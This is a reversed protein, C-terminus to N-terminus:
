RKMETKRIENAQKQLEQFLDEAEKEQRLIIPSMANREAQSIAGEYKNRNEKLLSVLKSYREKLQIWEQALKYAQKSKFQNVDNYFIGYAVDFSFTESTTNSKKNNAINKLQMKAKAISKEKGKQTLRINHLSAFKRLSAYDIEAYTQRMQNPLFVYVCVKGEPQYRDSVFWGLNNVEDYVMLYDNFPSNFPMGINQPKLYSNTESDYRTLFIDYGGLSTSDKSAFYLTTGDPLLFPYGRVASSDVLGELVKPSSWKEGFKDSGFLSVIGGKGSQCIITQDSFSNIFGLGTPLQKIGTLQKIQGGTLLRGCNNDLTITEIIKDVDVVFSDVIVVKEVAELMNSGLIARSHMKLLNECPFGLNKSLEIDSKLLNAAENFQYENILSDATKTHPKFNAVTSNKVTKKSRAQSYANDCIFALTIALLLFHVFRKMNLRKSVLQM